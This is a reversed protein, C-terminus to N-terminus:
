EIFESMVSLCLTDAISGSPLLFRHLVKPSLSGLPFDTVVFPGRFPHPSWFEKRDRQSGHLSGIEEAVCELPSESHLM